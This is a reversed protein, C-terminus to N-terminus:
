LKSATAQQVLHEVSVHMVDLLPAPWLGILLVFVALFTLFLSERIQIDKLETVEQRKVVGFIVRKIMWLTYAAGLM